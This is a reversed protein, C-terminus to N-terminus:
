KKIELHKAYEETVFEAWKNLIYEDTILSFVIKWKSIWNTAHFDTLNKFVTITSAMKSNDAVMKKEFKM